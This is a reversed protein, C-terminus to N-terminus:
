ETRCKICVCYVYDDSTLDIGCDQCSGFPPREKKKWPWKIWKFYGLVRAKHAKTVDAIVQELFPPLVYKEIFLKDEGWYEILDDESLKSWETFYIKDWINQYETKM